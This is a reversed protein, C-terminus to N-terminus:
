LALDGIRQEEDWASSVHRLWNSLEGQGGIDRAIVVGDDRAAAAPTARFQGSLALSLRARAARAVVLTVALLLTRVSCCRPVSALSGRERMSWGDVHWPLRQPKRERNQTEWAFSAM